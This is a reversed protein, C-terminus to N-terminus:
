LGGGGGGLRGRLVRRESGRRRGIRQFYVNEGGEEREGRRKCSMVVSEPGKELYWASKLM